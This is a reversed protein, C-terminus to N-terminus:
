ELSSLETTLEELRARLKGNEVKDVKRQTYAAELEAGVKTLERQLLEVSGRLAGAETTGREEQRELTALAERLEDQLRTRGEGEQELAGRLKEGEARAREAGRLKEGEAQAREAKSAGEKERGELRSETEDLTRATEVLHEKAKTLQSRLEAAAAEASQATKRMRDLDDKAFKCADDAEWLKTQMERAEHEM